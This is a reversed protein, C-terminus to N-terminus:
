NNNGLAELNLQELTSFSDGILDLIVDVEGVDRQWLEKLYSRYNQVEDISVLAAAVGVALREAKIGHQRALRITGILRDDWGLKRPVDRGIREVTDNLYPNMMRTILRHMYARFGEQTFLTDKGQHKAILAAGAEEFAATYLYDMMVPHQQLERLYSLQLMSALYAALGHVANHGYLKAEEFPLLDDKEEFSRIGRQFGDLHIKSVLITNFSEVLFAKPMEPTLTELDKEIITECDTVTGCMKGIVTNLFQVRELLQSHHKEPLCSLVKEQLIEAAKMDNEATYVVADVGSHELKLRLGEALLKHISGANTTSDDSVYDNTSGLATAIESAEAIAEVIRQRDHVENVDEIEVPYVTSVEVYDDHAINVKFYGKNERIAEIVDARRYAVVLRSFEGSQQAEHLFLGAQIAGFGFGVFTKKQQM